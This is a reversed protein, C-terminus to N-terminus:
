NYTSTKAKKVPRKTPSENDVENYPEVSMLYSVFIDWCCADARTEDDELPVLLQYHPEKDESRTLVLVMFVDADGQRADVHFMPMNLCTGSRVKDTYEETDASLILLGIGQEHLMEAICNVELSGAYIADTSAADILAKEIGDITVQFTSSNSLRLGKLATDIWDDESTFMRKIEIFERATTTDSTMARVNEVIATLNALMSGHNKPHRLQYYVSRKTYKARRMDTEHHCMLAQQVCDYLCLGNNATQSLTFTPPIIVKRRFSTLPRDVDDVFVFGLASRPVM